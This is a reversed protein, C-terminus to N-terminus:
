KGQSYASQWVQGLCKKCQSQESGESSSRSGDELVVGRVSRGMNCPLAHHLERSARENLNHRCAPERAFGSVNVLM